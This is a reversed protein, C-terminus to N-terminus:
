GKELRVPASVSAQLLSLYLGKVCAGSSNSPLFAQPKEEKERGGGGGQAQKALRAKWGGPRFTGLWSIHGHPQGAM